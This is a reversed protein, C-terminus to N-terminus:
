EIGALVLPLFAQIEVRSAQKGNKSTVYSGLQETQKRQPLFNTRTEGKQTRRSNGRIGLKDRLNAFVAEPRICDAKSLKKEAEALVPPKILKTAGLWCGGGEEASESIRM